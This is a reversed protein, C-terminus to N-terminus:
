PNAAELLSETPDVSTLHNLDAARSYYESTQVGSSNSATGVPILLSKHTDLSLHWSVLKLSAV